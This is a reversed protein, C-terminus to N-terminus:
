RMIEIRGTATVARYEARYMDEVLAAPHHYSGPTVARVIYALRFPQAGRHDVAAIFRDSRFESHETAAPKLWDLAAVDGARLLNPNDIEFGGPLPDDVVLRAGIEEFPTVELVAVLRTGQQVPGSVETGEMTFYRRTLTYGYGGAPAAVSPVGFSTLTIQQPATGVNEILTSQTQGSSLRKVVAGKPLAGDVRLGSDGPQTGLAHAALLVQAAEQTSLRWSGGIRAALASQDIARSGAEASLKLVAAVDRLATGFDARYDARNHDAELLSAARAFMRDARLPDGYAALAAGLQAAAMPTAFADEKTDAYYRLDGMSAAGQRALVWLAYAIDEGGEDFDPAYAIRNRLNDLAQAMARAPVAHGKAKARTLFDTVYADLWVNGSGARWLGFAGNSAQRALVREIAGDIRAPLESAMGIGADQAVESLYLLPLAASTVQETCGYPYRDLRRLLGPMDFRALPGASLTASATQPRLGNLVEPDFTFVEGPALSFQRTVAIEPDNVRVPLVLTKVLISGGPTQLVVKIEHDGVQESSLALEIRNSGNETLLLNAPAREIQVAPNASIDVSIEGAPGEAHVFELLLRSQDGPALVRPLSATLVVPDRALTETDANGVATKTWAVAMLRIAGNFGPKAVEIRATGDPGVEVPGAFFSMLQETPPPAQLQATSGADGGSRVSGLAGNLGDILRGYVDRVEVGLRRQGFYHGKPNPPLHGTLNLIGQDVAALSVYASEGEKIGAVRVTALFTGKQGGVVSPADIEVGLKKVGPSVAAHVIGLSRAPNQGAAVNMPRIVSAMVYAGAGWDPTVDLDILNEGASVVVARREIVRNSLVSVLAVGADPADIRLRATDGTAFTEANLSLALRDPTGSAEGGGYWGASFGVSSAVYPTGLREVVLEYRGWETNVSLPVPVAGLTAEGRAVRIRRTLPEWRWDGYTQYWQYREEIRNVTWRVPLAEAGVAILGFKAESAEPLTGTFEPRIGILPAQPAISRSIEREVPRGSGESVRVTVAADLPGSALDGEPLKLAIAAQGNADTRAPDIYRSRTSTRADHRGFLFNPYAELRQKSRLRVTGEVSMNAGPAGFLYKASVSLQPPAKPSIPGEPLTLEVDIRDPVFDEVLLTQSALPGQSPDAIVDLRWAGRPADVGLKLAFVRGGGASNDSFTRSYEVGNPRTLVATVPVDFIAEAQANRTLVTAYVSDGVRYAGRDTALFTDIPPAPPRGEVGRDSLDFAPDSLPLFAIDETGARAVLLAPQSAGTGRVLGADFQAFGDADSTARALVANALSILSVEIGELASADALSRVSVHLGDTGKLTSMGIDTLIFWQTAIPDDRDAAGPIRARLTYIGAPQDKLIDGLPLRTTMDVNITEQVDATGHWINEAIEAAFERDRRATLPVGFYSNQFSRLLNRDSVRRLTLDLTTANVTEVPIGANASRPVVFARGAFRVSPTRDRVYLRLRVQKSLVEGSAAPLGQRFTVDYRAGHSVGDICLQRGDPEVTLAPDGTHVFPEYDVGAKVLPESFEACIRPAAADNDVRHETIRFGYKGIARELADNLDDRPQLSIALRLADIMDRGRRNAELARAVLGLANVRQPVGDSRLYANVAAGLAQRTLRRRDASRLAKNDRLGLEALVAWHRADDSLAAATAAWSEARLINQKALAAELAAEVDQVTRGGVTFRSTNTQTLTRAASVDNETLFSLDAARAMALAKVAEPTATKVASMAGEYPQRETLESKPFCAKSRINYTFAVCASQAACARECAAQSTDFLKGLDAGYFDVDRSYLFRHDPVAQAHALLPALVAVLFVICRM